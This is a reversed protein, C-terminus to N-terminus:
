ARVQIGHVLDCTMPGVSIRIDDSWMKTPVNDQHGAFLPNGYMFEYADLGERFYFSIETKTTGGEVKIIRCKWPPTQPLCAIKTNM